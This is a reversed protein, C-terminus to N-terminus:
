TSTGIRPYSVPPQEVGGKRFPNASGNQDYSPLYVMPRTATHRRMVGLTERAMRASAAVGDLRDGLMSEQSYSADGVLLVEFDPMSLSVALHGSTHGPTPLIRVDGASTASSRERSALGERAQDM